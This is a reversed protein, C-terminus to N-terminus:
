PELIIDTGVCRNCVFLNSPDIRRKIALLKRYKNGWFVNQWDREYPNAENVYTGGDKGVIKGFKDTLRVLGQKMKRKEAAPADDKWNASFSMLAASKKWIEHVATSDREQSNVRGIFNFGAGYEQNDMILDVLDKAKHSLVDPTLLRSGDIINTAINPDRLFYRCYDIWTPLDFNVIQASVNPLSAIERFPSFAEAFTENTGNPQMFVGQFAISDKGNGLTGYGIYGAETLHSIAPFTRELITRLTAKDTSNVQVLGAQIHSPSPHTKLTVSVVVGWSNGGGGRLAYFYEPDTYKNITKYRGKADVLNVELLNDTALGYFHAFPSHGGGILYGGAGGVTQASGLVVIVGQEHAAEYVDLLQEGAQLTVAPIGPTGTPANRPVFDKHWEKGKLNHTWISFSGEGSSRGLHDHGTNKVVLYLNNKDAFRVSAQIDKLERAAVSYHPVLGSECPAGKESDIFCQEDGLEWLIASYAGPQDTRWFSDAWREKATACLTENFQKEHCVAASPFTSILRGSVSDNFRRWEGADPWCRDGFACRRRHHRTTTSIAFSSCISLYSCITTLIPTKM